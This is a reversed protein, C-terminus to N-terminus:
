LPEHSGMDHGPLRTLDVDRCPATTYEDSSALGVHETEDPDLTVPTSLVAVRPGPCDKRPGAYATVTIIAQFHDGTLNTVWLAGTFTGDDPDKHLTLNDYTWETGQVLETSSSDTADSCASLGTTAAALVLPVAALRRM